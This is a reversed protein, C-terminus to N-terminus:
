PSTTPPFQGRLGTWQAQGDVIDFRANSRPILQRTNALPGLCFDLKGAGVKETHEVKTGALFVLLCITDDMLRPFSDWEVKAVQDALARTTYPALILLSDASGFSRALDIVEGSTAGRIQM